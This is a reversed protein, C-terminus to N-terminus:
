EERRRQSRGTPWRLAPSSRRLAMVEDRNVREDTMLATVLRAIHAAHRREAAQEPRLRRKM